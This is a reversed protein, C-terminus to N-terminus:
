RLSFEPRYSAGSDIPWADLDKDVTRPRPWEKLSTIKDLGPFYTEGNLFSNVARTLKDLEPMADDQSQYGETMWRRLERLKASDAGETPRNGLEAALFFMATNDFKHTDYFDILGDADAGALYVPWVILDNTREQAALLKQLLLNNEVAMKEEWVAGAPLGISPKLEPEEPAKTSFEERIEDIVASAKGAYEQLLEAVARKAEGRQQLRYEPTRTPDQAIKHYSRIISVYSDDMGKYAQFVRPIENIYAATNDTM